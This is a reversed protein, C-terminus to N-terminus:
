RIPLQLPQMNVNRRAQVLTSKQKTAQNGAPQLYMKNSILIRDGDLLRLNSAVDPNKIIKQTQQAISVSSSLIFCFSSAISFQIVISSSKIVKDQKM